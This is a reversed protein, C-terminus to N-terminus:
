HMRSGFAGASRDDEASAEAIELTLRSADIVAGGPSVADVLDPLVAALQWAVAGPSGGVLQALDDIATDGITTRVQDVTMAKNPADDSLWSHYQGPDTTEALRLVVAHLRAAGPGASPAVSGVHALGFILMQVELDDLLTALKDIDDM